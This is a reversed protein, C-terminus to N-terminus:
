REKTSKRSTFNCKFFPMIVISSLSTLKKRFNKQCATLKHINITDKDLKKATLRFEFM